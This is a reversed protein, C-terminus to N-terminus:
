NVANTPTGTAKMLLGYFCEIYPNPQSATWSALTEMAFDTYSSTGDGNRSLVQRLRQLPPHVIVRDLNRRNRKELFKQTDFLLGTGLRWFFITAGIAISAPLDMFSEANSLDGMYPKLAHRDGYHQDIPRYLVCLLKPLDSPKQSFKDIDVFEGFTIEDLEPVFGYNVGQHTFRMVHEPNHSFIDALRALIYNRKTAPLQDAYAYPINCFIDLAAIQLEAESADNPVDLWRLYQSLTIDSWSGPLNITLKM